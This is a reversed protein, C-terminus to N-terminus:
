CRRLRRYLTLLERLYRELGKAKPTEQVDFDYFSGSGSRGLCKRTRCYGIPGDFLQEPMVEEGPAKDYQLPSRHRTPFNAHRRETCDVVWRGKDGRQWRRRGGCQEHPDTQLTPLNIHSGNM